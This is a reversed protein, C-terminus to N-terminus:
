RLDLLRLQTPSSGEFFSIATFRDLLKLKSAMRKTDDSQVVNRALAKADVDNVRLVLYNAIASYLSQNFDKAEQSAVIISIGFKRCEKAMTPLLTLKSARHAEDFIVAHTIRDQEGRLFMNQRISFLIFSALARQLRENPNVHVRILSPKSVKLLGAEEGEHRFFGYDNLEELRALIGPNTKEDKQLFDYFTQFKPVELDKTDLNPKGYGLKTYSKKIAERIQNNQRDGLDPFIASFIDRLMGVNDVWAYPGHGTVRMPNFGLGSEMDIYNLDGLRVKLDAEIDDHYSFVIPIINAKCLQECINEICTTKGMGPLGVIMLHPNGKKSVLWELPKDAFKSHGLLIAIDKQIEPDTEENPVKMASEPIENESVGKKPENTIRKDANNTLDSSTEEVSEILLPSEKDEIHRIDQMEKPGFLYIRTSGILDIDKPESSYDPCFIYGRNETEDCKLFTESQFLKDISDSLLNYAPNELSNRKAKELYFRLVRALKKRRIVIQSKKLDSSFYSNKWINNSNSTQRHIDEHLISDNVTRLLRRYKIEIFTFQLDHKNQRVYILDARSSGYDPQEEDKDVDITTDKKPKIDLNLLDRIDDIPVFFGTQPSFWIPDDSHKMCNSYFLALAVLENCENGKNSLRMALRGSISKLQSLLYSCNKHSFSLGMESLANYLISKVEDVNITSTVLQITELDNREPVCDIVFTDYIDPNDNPSDFFELGANRDITIVWDSYKHMQMLKDSKDATVKTELVPWCDNAGTNKSTARLISMHIRQLRDTYVRKPHKEGDAIPAVTTIWTPIPYYEFHRILSPSLGFSEIPKVSEFRSLPYQVVASDFTDFAITLHVPEYSQAIGKSWRLKPISVREKQFSEQMWKNEKPIASVGARRREAMEAIFSGLMRTKIYKQSPILDVVYGEHHNKPKKSNKDSGNESKNLGRGLARLLTQGDGPRLANIKLISYPEHLTSYKAIENGIIDASSLNRMFDINTDNNSLCRELLSIRAQPESEGSEIMAVTHFGINDGFVFSSEESLGPLFAPFHSGNVLSLMKNIETKKLDEAYRAYFALEDYAQHWAVRIPHSPLVILGILDGQQTQVEVTNALALEPNGKDMADIWANVYEDANKNEHYIFGIFGKREFAKKVLNKTENNINNKRDTIHPSKTSIPKFEPDSIWVGDDRIKLIWRGVEYERMAWDEEVKRVLPPRYVNAKRKSPLKLSIYGNKDEFCETICVKEFEEETLAIAEDVLARTRKGTSPGPPGEKDGIEEFTLLFPETEKWLASEDGNEPKEAGIPHVRVIVEYKGDEDEFDEKSFICSEVKKGSHSVEKSIMEYEDRDIGTVISVCYTEGNRKIDAPETKWRIRLADQKETEKDVYFVPLSDSSPWKLGSWKAPKNNENKRWPVIEIKRLEQNRFGPNMNNLHLEEKEQIGNVVELWRKGESKRLYKELLEIKNQEEEPLLLSDIRAYYTDNAGTNLLLREVVMYSLTLHDENLSETINIPWFGLMTILDGINEPSKACESYFDFTQWPSITNRKGIKLAEKCAKKVFKRPEPSIEKLAAKQAPELLENETIERVASYIGDMGAGANKVDVLLLVSDSKSERLDVAKDSNIINGKGSKSDNVAFINWGDVNLKNESILEEIVQSSLCKIYVMTGLKPKGLITKLAENLCEIHINNM